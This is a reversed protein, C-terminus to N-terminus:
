MTQQRDSSGFREVNAALAEIIRCLQELLLTEQLMETLVEERLGAASLGPANFLNKPRHLLLVINQGSISIEPAAVDLQQILEKLQKLLPLTFVQRAFNSDQAYIDYRDALPNAEITQKYKADLPKPQMWGLLKGWNYQMVAVTKSSRSLKAKAVVGAFVTSREREGKNVRYKALSCEVLEIAIHAGQYRFYDEQAILEPAHAPVIRSDALEAMDIYGYREYHFNPLHHLLEPALNAVFAQKFRVSPKLVYVTTFIVSLVLPLPGIYVILVCSGLIALGGILKIRNQVRLERQRVQEIKRWAPEALKQYAAVLEPAVELKLRKRKFRLVGHVIFDVLSEIALNIARRNQDRASFSAYPSPKNISVDM